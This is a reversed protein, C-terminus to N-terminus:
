SSFCMNFRKQLTLSKPNRNNLCDDRDNNYEAVGVRFYARAQDRLREEVDCQTHQCFLRDYRDQLVSSAALLLVGISALM